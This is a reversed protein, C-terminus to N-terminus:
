EGGKAAAAQCEQDLQEFIADPSVVQAHLRAHVPGRSTALLFCGAWSTNQAPRQRSRAAAPRLPRRVSQPAAFSLAIARSEYPQLFLPFQTRPRDSYAKVKQSDGDTARDRVTMSFIPINAEVPFLKKGDALLCVSHISIAASSHNAVTAFVACIPSASEVFVAKAQVVAINKRWRLWQVVAMSLSLGFGLVACWDVWSTIDM